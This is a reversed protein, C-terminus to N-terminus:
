QASGDVTAAPTLDVTGSFNWVPTGSVNKQATTIWPNAWGDVKGLRSLWKAITPEDLSTGQFQITGAMSAGTGTAGSTATTGAATLPAAGTQSNNTGSMATLWMQEPIVMSVDRLVGSWLIEGQQTEAVLTQKATLQTKLDAYQQLDAIQSQLNANVSQQAALEETAKSLRASQLVFVLFLLAFVAVAGSVILGTVRRTRQKQKVESPLLNVQTM